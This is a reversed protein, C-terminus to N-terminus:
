REINQELYPLIDTHHSIMKWEGLEKRFINTARISVQEINGEPNVNSGIELNQVIAIDDSAIVHIDKPEVKGGLKLAAAAEWIKLTDAWGVQYDGAPSMYTVDDAHSWVAKMPELDGTFMINLAEYFEVAAQLVAEENVGASASSNFFTANLAILSATLLTKKKM